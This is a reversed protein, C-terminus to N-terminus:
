WSRICSARICCQLSSVWFGFHVTCCAAYNMLEIVHVIQPYGGYDFGVHILVLVFVKGGYCGGEQDGGCM